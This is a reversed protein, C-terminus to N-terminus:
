INFDEIHRYWIELEFWGDYNENFGIKPGGLQGVLQTAHWPSLLTCPTGQVLYQELAFHHPPYSDWPVHSPPVSQESHM